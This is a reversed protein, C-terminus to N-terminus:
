RFSLIYRFSCSVKGSLRDFFPFTATYLHSFSVPSSSSSLDFCVQPYNLILKIVFMISAFKVVFRLLNYESMCPFCCLRGLTETASQSTPGSNVLSEACGTDQEVTERKRKRNECAVEVREDGFDAWAASELTVSHNFEYGLAEVEKVKRLTMSKM